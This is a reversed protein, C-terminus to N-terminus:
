IAGEQELALFADSFGCPIKKCALITQYALVELSDVYIDNSLGEKKLLSLETCGLVLRECGRSLLQNAIAGFREMDVPRNQKIDNYIFSSICEQEKETPLICTMGSSRCFHEYAGSSVTGETALLGFTKINGRALHKVTEEIINLIPIKAVAQLQEYFTHATNCPIVLLEAGATQLRELEARMTPFPDENSRGMLFATRDPTSARSSIILDIHEADTMALTRATLLEYFYVTSMPGLGGLIGLLPQKSQTEM